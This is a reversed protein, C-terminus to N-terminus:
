LIVKFEVRRNKARGEITGNSAIPRTEGYGKITLREPAIGHNMLYVEVAIARDESLKQNFEYTGISDAHGIIELGADKNDKLVEIIRDLVGYFDLSFESKNFPFRVQINEIVDTIKAEVKGPKAEEVKKPKEAKKEFPVRIEKTEGPMITVKVKTIKYGLSSFTVMYSGPKTTVSKFGNEPVDLLVEQGEGEMIGTCSVPEGTRNDVARFTLKSLEKKEAKLLPLGFSFSLDIRPTMSSGKEAAFQELKSLALTGKLLGSEYQLGVNADRGDAEIIFSPGNPITFKAGGFLGFVYNEHEEDLMADFNLLHSRPGYGVFRGRGIGATIEFNEGFDKTASLYVSAVEPPRPDYYEDDFTKDSGVPSINKNYTIDEIGFSLSPLNEGKLLQCALGLAFDSGDYWKLVGDFINYSFEVGVNPDIGIESETRLPYNGNLNIFIGQSNKATPIDIYSERKLIEADLILASVFLFCLFLRKM